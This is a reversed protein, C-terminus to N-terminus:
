LLRGSNLTLKGYLGQIQVGVTGPSDLDVGTNGDDVGVVTVGDAGPTDKGGDLEADTIVNGTAPGFEGAPISDTDAVATPVDDIINVSLTADAFQGDNDTLHVAFDEFISNQGNANPHTTENDLLKM